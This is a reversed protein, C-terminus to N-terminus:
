TTFARIWSEIDKVAETITRPTLELWDKFQSLAEGKADYHGRQLNSLLSSVIEHRLEDTLLGLRDLVFHTIVSVRIESLNQTFLDPYTERILDGVEKQKGVWKFATDGSCDYVHAIEHIVSESDEEQM